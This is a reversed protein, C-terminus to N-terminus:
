RIQRTARKRPSEQYVVCCLPCVFRWQASLVTLGNARVALVNRSVPLVHPSCNACHATAQLRPEQIFVLNATVDKKRGSLNQRCFRSGAKRKWTESGHMPQPHNLLHRTAVTKMRSSEACKKVRALNQGLLCAVGNAKGVEWGLEIWRCFTSNTM